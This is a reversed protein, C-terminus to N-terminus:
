KDKFDYIRRYIQIWSKEQKLERYSSDPQYSRLGAVRICHCLRGDCAPCGKLGDHRPVQFFFMNGEILSAINLSM